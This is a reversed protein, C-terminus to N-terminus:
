SQRIIEQFFGHWPVYPSRLVKHSEQLSEHFVEFCTKRKPERSKKSVM